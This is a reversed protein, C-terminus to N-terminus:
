FSSRKFKGRKQKKPEEVPWKFAGLFTDEAEEIFIQCSYAELFIVLTHTFLSHGKYEFYVKDIRFWGLDTEDDLIKRTSGCSNFRM